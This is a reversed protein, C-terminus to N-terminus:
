KNPSTPTKEKTRLDQIIKQPIFRPPDVYIHLGGEERKLHCGCKRCNEDCHTTWGYGLECRVM